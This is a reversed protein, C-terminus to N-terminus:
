ARFERWAVAWLGCVRRWFPWFGFDVWEGFDEFLPEGIEAAASEVAEILVFLDVFEGGGLGDEFYIERTGDEDEDIADDDRRFVAGADDVGGLDAIAFGSLDEVFDNRSLDEGRFM